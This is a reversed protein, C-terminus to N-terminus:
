VRGMGEEQKHSGIGREKEGRWVKAVARSALDHTKRRDGEYCSKSPVIRYMGTGGRLCIEEFPWEGRRNM